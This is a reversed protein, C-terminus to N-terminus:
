RYEDQTEEIENHEVSFYLTADEEWETLNFTAGVRVLERVPVDFGVLEGKQSNFPTGHVIRGICTVCQEFCGDTILTLRM